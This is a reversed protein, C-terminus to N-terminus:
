STFKEILSNSNLISNNSLMQSKRLPQSHDSQQIASSYSKNSNAFPTTTKDATSNVNSVVKSEGNNIVHLTGRANSGINWNSNSNSSSNSSNSSTSSSSNVYYPRRPPVNSHTVLPAMNPSSPSYRRTLTPAPRSVTAQHSLAQAQTNYNPPQHTTLPPHYHPPITLPITQALTLPLSPSTNYHQPLYHASIYPSNAHFPTNSQFALQTHVQPTLMHIASPHVDTKSDSDAQPLVFLIRSDSTASLDFAAGLHSVLSNSISNCNTDCNIEDSDSSKENQEGYSSHKRDSSPPCSQVNNNNGTTGRSDVGNSYKSGNDGGTNSSNSGSSQGSNSGPSDSGNNNNKNSFSNEPLRFKEIIAKRDDVVQDTVRLIRGLLSQSLDITAALPGVAQHLVVFAYEFAQKVMLAGYSNKGIDNSPNLPDEICLISPRYNSDMNKQIESKPVFSGGDKIRIGVRYYNFYRGFLEFFEMLLVGLNARVHRAQARPHLQIFSIVMLILSYSSIGGTFVEKLNRQLLFQKLVFVLKELNPFTAKFKQM